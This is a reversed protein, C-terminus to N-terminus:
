QTVTPDPTAPAGWAGLASLSQVGATGSTAVAAVALAALAVTAGAVKLVTNPNRAPAAAPVQMSADASASRM